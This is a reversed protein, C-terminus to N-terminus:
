SMTKPPEVLGEILRVRVLGGAVDVGEVVESRAPFLVEGRPGKAVWVDNAGTDIVEVLTGLEEGDVTVVRLGILEHLFYSDSDDRPVDGEPAEVLLGRMAEASTRDTLGSLELIWAQRDLRARVVRHETTGITVRKGRQLNPAGPAFAEVRLEGRLGHARLVRGLAIYGERPDLQLQPQPRRRRRPQPTTM